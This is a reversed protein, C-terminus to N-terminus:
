VTDEARKTVTHLIENFQGPQSQVQFGGREAQTVTGASKATLMEKELYFTVWALGGDAWGLPFKINIHPNRAGGV